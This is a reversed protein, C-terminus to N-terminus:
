RALKPPSAVGGLVGEADIAGAFTEVARTLPTEGAREREEVAAEFLAALAAVTAPERMKVEIEFTASM